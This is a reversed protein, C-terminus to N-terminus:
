FLERVEGLIHAESSLFNTNYDDCIGSLSVRKERGEHHCRLIYVSLFVLVSVRDYLAFTILLKLCDTLHMVPYLLDRTVADLRSFGPDNTIDQTSLTRASMSYHERFVTFVFDKLYCAQTFLENLGNDLLFLGMRGRHRPDELYRRLCAEHQPCAELSSGALFLVCSNALDDYVSVIKPLVVSGTRQVPNDNENTQEEYRLSCRASPKKASSSSVVARAQVPTTQNRRRLADPPSCSSTSDREEALAKRSRKKSAPTCRALSLNRTEEVIDVVVNRQNLMLEALPVGPFMELIAM